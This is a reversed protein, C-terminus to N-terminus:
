RYAIRIELYLKPLPIMEVGMRGHGAWLGTLPSLIFVMLQVLFVCVFCM